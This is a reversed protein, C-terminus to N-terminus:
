RSYIGNNSSNQEDLSYLGSARWRLVAKNQTDIEKAEPSDWEWDPLSDFEPCFIQFLDLEQAYMHNAGLIKKHYIGYYLIGNIRQYRQTRTLTM